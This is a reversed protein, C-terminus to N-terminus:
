INLLILCSFIILNILFKNNNKIKSVKWKIRFRLNHKSLISYIFNCSRHASDVQLSLLTSTGLCALAFCFLIFGDILVIYFEKVNMIIYLSLMEGFASTFFMAGFTRKISLNLDGIESIIKHHDYILQSLRNLSKRSSSKSIQEIEENIQNFLMRYYPLIIYLITTATFCGVCITYSTYMLFPTMLIWTISKTLYCIVTLTIFFTMLGFPFSMKVFLLHIFGAIMSLKKYNSQNLEISGRRYGRAKVNKVIRKNHKLDYFPKFSRLHNNSEALLMDMRWVGAFFNIVSLMIFFIILKPPLKPYVFLWRFKTVLIIVMLHNTWIFIDNFWCIFKALKNDNLNNFIDDLRITIMRHKHMFNFLSDIIEPLNLFQNRFKQKILQILKM